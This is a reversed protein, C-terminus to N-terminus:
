PFFYILPLCAQLTFNLQSPVDGGICHHWNIIFAIQNQYFNLPAQRRSLVPVCPLPIHAIPQERISYSSKAPHTARSPFHQLAITFHQHTSKTCQGPRFACSLLAWKSRSTIHELGEGLRAVSVTFGKLMQQVLIFKSAATSTWTGHVALSSTYRSTQHLYQISSRRCIDSPPTTCVSYHQKNYIYRPNQFFQLKKTYNKFAMKCLKGKFMENWFVSRSKLVLIHFNNFSSYKSWLKYLTDKCPAVHNFIWWYIM